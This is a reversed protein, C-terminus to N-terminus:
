SKLGKWNPIRKCGDKKIVHSLMTLRKDEDASLFGNQIKSDMDSAGSFSDTVEDGKNDSPKKSLSDTVKDGKNDSPKKSLSNDLEYIVNEANDDSKGKM